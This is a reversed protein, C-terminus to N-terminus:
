LKQVVKNIYRFGPTIGRAKALADAFLQVPLIDLIPSLFEDVGDAQPPTEGPLLLVGNHVLLVKLDYGALEAALWHASAQSEGPPAFVVAGM